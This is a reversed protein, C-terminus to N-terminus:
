YSACRYHVCCCQDFLKEPAKLYVIRLLYFGTNLVTQAHGFRDIAPLGDIDQDPLRAFCTCTEM